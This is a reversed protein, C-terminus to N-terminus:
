IGRRALAACLRSPQRIAEPCKFELYYSKVSTSCDNKTISPSTTVQARSQSEAKGPCGRTANWPTPGQAGPTGIPQNPPYCLIWLSQGPPHLCTHSSKLNYHIKGPKQRLGPRNGQERGRGRCGRKQLRPHARPELPLRTRYQQGDIMGLRTQARSTVARELPRLRLQGDEEGLAWCVSFPRPCARSCAGKLVSPM